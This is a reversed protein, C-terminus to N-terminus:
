FQKVYTAESIVEIGKVNLAQLATTGVTGFTITGGQAVAIFDNYDLTLLFGPGLPIEDEADLGGTFTGTPASTTISGTVVRSLIKGNAESGISAPTFQVTVTGGGPNTATYGGNTDTLANIAAAVKTALLAVTTESSTKSVDGSITVGDVKLNITNTDVGIASIIMNATAPTGNTAAVAEEDIDVDTVEIEEGAANTVVWAGVTNLASSGYDPFIDLKGGAQAIPIYAQIKFQQSAEQAAIIHLGVDTLGKFDSGKLNKAPVYLGDENFQSASLMSIQFKTTRPDKGDEYPKPIVNIICDPGIFGEDGDDAGWMNKKDDWAFIPVTEGNLASLTKELQVGIALEFEYSPRGSLVVVEPGYSGLTGTKPATTKDDAGVPEPLPYLKSQDGNPLLMAAKFAARFLEPTAYEEPSFVKGGYAMRIIRGRKPDCKIPETNGGIKNCLNIAM